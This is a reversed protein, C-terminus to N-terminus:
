RKKKKYQFGKIGVFTGLEGGGGKKQRIASNGPYLTVKVASYRIYLEFYVYRM